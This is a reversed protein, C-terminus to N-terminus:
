QSRQHQVAGTLKPRTTKIYFKIKLEHRVNCYCFVHPACRTQKTEDREVIKKYLKRYQILHQPETAYVTYEKIM